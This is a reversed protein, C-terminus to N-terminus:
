SKAEAEAKKRAKIEAIKKALAIPDINIAALGKKGTEGKEKKEKPKKEVDLNVTFSKDSISESKKGWAAGVIKQRREHLLSVERRNFFQIRELEIIRNEIAERLKEQDLEGEEIKDLETVKGELWQKYLESDIKIEERKM